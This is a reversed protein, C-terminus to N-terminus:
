APWKKEERLQRMLDGRRALGGTQGATCGCPELYGYQDGTFVLAAQPAPWGDFLVKEPQATSLGDGAPDVGDSPTSTRGMAFYVAAGVAAALALAILVVVAGRGNRRTDCAQM